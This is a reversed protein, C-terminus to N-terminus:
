HGLGCKGKGAARQNGAQAREDDTGAGQQRGRMGVRGGSGLCCNCLSRRLHHFDGAGAAVIRAKSGTAGAAAGLRVQRQQFRRLRDGHQGAVQEICAGNGVEVFRQLGGGTDGRAAPAPAAPVVEDNAALARGLRQIDVAQLAALVLVHALVHGAHFADLYQLPRRRDVEAHHLRAPQDVHDGLTRARLGEVGDAGGIAAVIELLQVEVQSPRDRVITFGREADVAHPRVLVIRDVEHIELLAIDRRRDRQVEARAGVEGDQRRVHLAFVQAALARGGPAGDQGVAVPGEVAVFEGALGAEARVVRALRRHTVAQRVAEVVAPLQRLIEAVLLQVHVPTENRQARQGIFAQLRAAARDLVHLTIVACEVGIGFAREVQAALAVGDHGTDVEVAVLDAVAGGGAADGREVDEIGHVVLGVAAIGRRAAQGGGGDFVGGQVQAVLDRQGVLQVQAQCGAVVAAAVLRVVFQAVGGGFQLVVLGGAAGGQEVAGRGVDRRVDAIRRREQRHAAGIEEAHLELRFFALLCLHAGLELVQVAADGACQRQVVQFAAVDGRGIGVRVVDGDQGARLHLGALFAGFTEFGFQVGVQAVAPVHLRRQRQDVAHDRM